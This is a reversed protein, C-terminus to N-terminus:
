RAARASVVAKNEQTGATDRASPSRLIWATAYMIFLTAALLAVEVALSTAGNKDGVLALALLVAALHVCFVPLSAAGLLELPRWRIAGKLAPGFRLIVVLLALFNLFRLPGLHWKSLFMPTTQNDDFVAQGLIHRVCFGVVTMMIAAYVIANPVKLTSEAATHAGLWLGVMWVLQWAFIDFAGTDHFPVKLGVLSRVGQYIEKELGFQALLWIIISAMMVPTWSLRLGVVLLWPSIVMFVVYLPLIDLLPPNYILLLSSGLATLPDQLYFSILNKITQRDTTIGIGAIITFLYALMAVHCAYLKIVRRLFARIMAYIGDKAARRSFIYGAMFASLFVFGEAASVFGLPQGLASSFRTPVHTITMMVLMLGRLADIERWRTM